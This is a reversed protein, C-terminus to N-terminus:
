RAPLARGRLFDKYKEISKTEEAKVGRLEAVYTSTLGAVLSGYLIRSLIDNGPPNLVRLKVGSGKLYDVAFELLPDDDWLVLARIIDINVPKEWGVIDNHAWEPIIEIKAIMKSNENLEDKFRLALPYYRTNSIIIPISENLFEALEKSTAVATDVSKLIEVVGELDDHVIIGYTSLVKATAILLQPFAARPPLGGDIVVHPIGGSEAMEILSGGSSVVCLEAGMELSKSVNSLTELTNGSYSIGCVLTTPDVWGPPQFDKVITIPIKSKGYMAAYVADCVIGSGGMGTLVLKRIDRNRPTGLVEYKVANLALEYWNLYILEM